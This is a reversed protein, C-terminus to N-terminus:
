EYQYTEFNIGWQPVYQDSNMEKSEVFDSLFVLSLKQLINKNCLVYDLIHGYM